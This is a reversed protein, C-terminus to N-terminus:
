IKGERLEIFTPIISCKIIIFIFSMAILIIAVAENEPSDNYDEEAFVINRDKDIKLQIKGIDALELCEERSTYIRKVEERGELVFKVSRNKSNNCHVNVVSAEIIERSKMLECVKEKRDLM